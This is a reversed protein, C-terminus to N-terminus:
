QRGTGNLIYRAFVILTQGASALVILGIGVASTVSHPSIHTFIDKLAFFLGVVMFAFLLWLATTKIYNM